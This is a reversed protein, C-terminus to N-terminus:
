KHSNVRTGNVQYTARPLIAVKAMPKPMLKKSGRAAPVEPIDSIPSSYHLQFLQPSFFWVASGGVEIGHRRQFWRVCQPARHRPSEESTQCRVLDAGSSVTGTAMTPPTKVFEAM